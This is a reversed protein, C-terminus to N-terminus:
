PQQPGIVMSRNAREEAPVPLTVLDAGTGGLLKRRVVKANATADYEAVPVGLVVAEAAGVSALLSYAAVQEERRAAVLNTESLLLESEANLVEIVTRTGVLNEQRVGEAALTNASVGVKTAEIVARAARLQNFSNTVNEETQRSTTSITEMLQSQRAKAQRVSSGIAGGQFFPITATVAADQAWFQGERVFNAGGGGGEYKTYGGSVALDVSPLFQREATKVDYRAAAEDFRAALLAPNNERAFDVASGANTPMPPLAPMPELAEPLRGVVRLYAQRAAALNNEGVILNSQATALRAESQAVDTRTVDGVEFRDGTAQRERELVKVQNKNLEVVREFRIVDAYATVVQLVIQNEIARLRARAALIRNEAASTSTGVRGGQYLSQSLQLGASYTRGNDSFASLGAQDFSVRAGIQPRGPALAQPVQEDIVRVADRQAGLEPNTEYASAVAAALTDAAAPGAIFAAALLLLPRLATLASVRM